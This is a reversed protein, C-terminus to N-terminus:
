VLSVPLTGPASRLGALVKAGQLLAPPRSSYLALYTSADPLVSLEYPTRTGVIIHRPCLEIVSNVLQAQNPYRHADQTVMVVLDHPKIQEMTKKYEDPGIDPSVTFSMVKVGHSELARTFTLGGELSDEALSAAQNGVEIVTVEKVPLPMLGANRIMTISDGYAEEMIELNEGSGVETQPFPWKVYTRKARAIRALSEDIREESIRGERVGNVVAWFAEIQFEPTHSVLLLDNGAEVALVAAEAMSFQRTVAQMEMCDTLILGDYGLEERLLRTLVPYSLSAPRGPVPELAPFVVHSALIAEVGEAIAGKFPVLEVNDLREKSHHIVPLGLHSDVATDGHGPFHKATAIVSEQLGKIYAIGLDRVQAPDSGFARVGIVPNHPNNNVDVCPSLNISFGMAALEKGVVQAVEYARERSNLAGVGMQAPAISVGRTIRAVSGGEQDVSIFLGVGFQSNLAVEQLQSNLETIQAASEVNRSFIIIGGLNYEEIFHRIHQPVGSTGAFGFMMMQGVKAELPLNRM